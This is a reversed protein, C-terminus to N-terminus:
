STCTGVSSPELRASPWERVADISLGALGVCTQSLEGLSVNAVQSVEALMARLHSSAEAESVRTLEVSGTIAHGLIKTEDALLCRTKTGGADIALFLAM